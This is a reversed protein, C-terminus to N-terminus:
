NISNNGGVNENLQDAFEMPARQFISVTWKELQMEITMIGKSNM